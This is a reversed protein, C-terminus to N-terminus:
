DDMIKKCIKGVEYLGVLKSLNLRYAIKACRVSNNTFRSEKIKEDKKKLDGKGRTSTSFIKFIFNALEFDM